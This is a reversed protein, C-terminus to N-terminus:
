KPALEPSGEKAVDSAMGEHYEALATAHKAADTYLSVLERCHRAPDPWKTPRHSMPNEAYEKAMQVHETRQEELRLAEARYYASLKEHDQQTKANKILLHLEKKSLNQKTQAAGLQPAGANLFVIMLALQSFALGFQEWLKRRTFEAV